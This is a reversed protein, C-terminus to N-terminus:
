ALVPYPCPSCALELNMYDPYEPMEAFGFRNMVLQEEATCNKHMAVRFIDSYRLVYAAYGFLQECYGKGQLEPIVYMKEVVRCDDPLNEDKGMMVFGVAEGRLYCMALYGPHRSVLQRIEKRFCDECFREGYAQKALKVVQEEQKPLEVAEVLMNLDDGAVGAWARKLEQPLHSADNMYEITIKGDEDVDLLSVATNDSHVVEGVRSIPMGMMICLASKLTCSHSVAVATGDPGVEKAMQRVCHILRDAAQQFTSAGPTICNWPERSWVANAEPYEKAINGWAMDEWVGTTVERLSIRCRVPCNHDKAIPEATARSRFADSTYVADVPIGQFRRRLMEVQAYGKTTVLADVQAQTRRCANGESECHRILYVKAM